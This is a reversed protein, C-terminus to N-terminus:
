AVSEYGHTMLKYMAEFRFPKELFHDTWNMTLSKVSSDGSVMIIMANWNMKKIQKVMELGSMRPLRYDIVVFDFHGDEFMTLGDEANDVSSVEFGMYLLYETMCKRIMKDDDVILIRHKNDM